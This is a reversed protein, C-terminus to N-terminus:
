RFRAVEPGSQASSLKRDGKDARRHVALFAVLAVLLAGIVTLSRGTGTSLLERAASPGDTVRATISGLSGLAPLNALGELGTAAPATVTADAVATGPDDPPATAAVFADTVAVLAPAAAAADPAPGSAAV